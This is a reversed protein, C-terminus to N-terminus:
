IITMNVLTLGVSLRLMASGIWQAWVSLYPKQAINAGYTIVCSKRWITRRLHGWVRRQEQGTGRVEPAPSALKSRGVQAMGGHPLNCRILAPSLQKDDSRVMEQRDARTRCELTTVSSNNFQLIRKSLGWKSAERLCSIWLSPFRPSWVRNSRFVDKIRIRSSDSPRQASIQATTLAKAATTPYSQSM